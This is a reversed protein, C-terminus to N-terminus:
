DEKALRFFQKTNETTIREVEQKTCGHIEALKEAIYPLYAPENRKGRHPHPTLYPCDTEIMTLELPIRAVVGRLKNANKFTIPGGFSFYHGLKRYHESMEWSGSYCHLLCSLDPFEQLIELTDQSADRAHIVAPLTLEQALTLQRRFVQRQVDRPSNDYHYDLGTEGIAVVKPHVALEKLNEEIEETFTKADHPHVGIVAYLQPYEEALKIAKKSSKLDYGINIVTNVGATTARDIVQSLDKKFRPDNLHAHSDIM